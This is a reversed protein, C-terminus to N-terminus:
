ESSWPTYLYGVISGLNVVTGQAEFLLPSFAQITALAGWFNVDFMKRATSIDADLAPSYYNCGANNVLYDLKGKKSGARVALVASAISTDSTVDLQILIVGPLVKLESMKDLSRATAFVLFGRKQFSKALANGIGGTSCGTILVSKQSSM